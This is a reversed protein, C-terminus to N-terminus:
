ITCMLSLRMIRFSEEIKRRGESVSIIDTVSDDVLNTCIAYFGDYMSEEEATKEDIEYVKKTAIEGDNTVPTVKIFRAPDNPNKKQRRASKSDVMKEARELQASRLTKQYLAYSPSYTVIMLQGVVSSGDHIREKYYIENSM